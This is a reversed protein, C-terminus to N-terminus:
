ANGHEGRKLFQGIEALLADPAEEPIYHGCDLARGSVTEAVRGGRDHGVLSFSGFGLGQMLAVQDRAMERKSYNSHDSLGAPKSADGYGRLDSAVVTFSHALAM